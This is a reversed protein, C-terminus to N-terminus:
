SLVNYVCSVLFWFTQVTYVCRWSYVQWVWSDKSRNSESESLRVSVLLNMDFLFNTWTSSSRVKYKLYNILMVDRFGLFMSAKNSGVGALNYYKWEHWRTSSYTAVVKRKVRRKLRYLFLPANHTFTKMAHLILPGPMMCRICINGLRLSSMNAHSTNVSLTTAVVAGDNGHKVYGYAGTIMYM